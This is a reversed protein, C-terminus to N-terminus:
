EEKKSKKSTGNALALIEGALPFAFKQILATNGPIAVFAIIYKFQFYAASFYFAERIGIERICACFKISNSSPKM